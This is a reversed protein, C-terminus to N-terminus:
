KGAAPAHRAAPAAALVLFPRASCLTLEAACLLVTCLARIGVVIYPHAAACHRASGSGGGGCWAMVSGIAAATAPLHTVSCHHLIHREM